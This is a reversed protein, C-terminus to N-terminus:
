KIGLLKTVEAYSMKKLEEMTHGTAAGSAIRGSPTVGPILIYRVASGNHNVHDFYEADSSFDGGWWGWDNVYLKINGVKYVPKLEVYTEYTDVHHTTPDVTKVTDRIYTNENVSSVEGQSSKFYVLIQGKDIIDSTLKLADISQDYSYLSSTSSNDAEYDIEAFNAPMWNSYTVQADKGVAGTAGIAGTSGQPGAPGSPGMDGKKCSTVLMAAGLAMVLYSKFKM